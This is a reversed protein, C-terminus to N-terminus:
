QIKKIIRELVSSFIEVEHESIDEVLSDFFAQVQETALNDLIEKGEKTLFVNYTRKDNVDTTRRLMNKKILNNVIKSVTTHDKEVMEALQNQSIGEQYNLATMIKWQEFTLPCNLERFRKNLDFGILRSLTVVKLGISKNYDYVKM